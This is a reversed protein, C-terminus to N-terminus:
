WSLLFSDILLRPQASTQRLMRLAYLLRGLAHVADPTALGAHRVRGLAIERLVLCWQCLRAEVDDEKGLLTAAAAVRAAPALTVLKFFEKRSSEAAEPVPEPSAVFVVRSRVTAAVARPFSTFLFFVTSEPPEELTKLFADQAEPTFREVADLIALKRRSAYPRLGAWAIVELIQGIRWSQQEGRDFYRVDAPALQGVFAGLRRQWQSWAGSFLYAHGRFTLDVSM